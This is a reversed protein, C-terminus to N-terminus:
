ELDGELAKRATHGGDDIVMCDIEQQPRYSTEWGYNEQEAYFELAERYRKNQEILENNHKLTNNYYGKYVNLNSKLQKNKRKLNDYLADKLGKQSEKFGYRLELEQVREAQKILWEVDDDLHGHYNVREKIGELREKDSTRCYCRWLQGELDYFQGNGECMKCDNM